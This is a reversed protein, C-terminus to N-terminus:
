VTAVSPIKTLEVTGQCASGEKGGFVYLRSGDTDIISLKVQHGGWMRSVDEVSAM